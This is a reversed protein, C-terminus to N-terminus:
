RGKGPNFNLMNAILQILLSILLPWTIIVQPGFIVPFIM